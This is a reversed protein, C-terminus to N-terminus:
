KSFCCKAAAQRFASLPLSLQYSVPQPHLETRLTLGAHRQRLNSEEYCCSIKSGPDVKLASEKITDTCGRMCDWTNVNTRVNFIRYDLDSNPPNNFRQFVWCANNTPYCAQQLQSEGPFAVQIDQPLFGLPVICNLFVFICLIIICIKKMNKCVVVVIVMM